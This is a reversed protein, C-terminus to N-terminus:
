GHPQAAASAEGHTLLSVTQLSTSAGTGQGSAGATLQLLAQVMSAALLPAATAPNEASPRTQRAAVTTRDKSRSAPGRILLSSPSSDLPHALATSARPGSTVGLSSQTGDAATLQLRLARSPPLQKGSATAPAANAVQWQAEYTFGEALGAAAALDTSRMQTSLSSRFVSRGPRMVYHCEFHASLSSSALYAVPQTFELLMKHPLLAASM